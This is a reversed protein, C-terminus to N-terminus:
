APSASRSRSRNRRKSKKRRSSKDKSRSGSRSRKRARDYDDPEGKVDRRSIPRDRDDPEWRRNPSRSGPSRDRSHDRDRDRRSRERYYEDDREYSRRYDDDRRYRRDRDYDRYRDGDDHYDRRRDDRYRDPPGSGHYGYDRPGRGYDIPPEYGGPGRVGPAPPGHLPEGSTPVNYGPVNPKPCVCYKPRYGCTLCRDSAVPPPGEPAKSSSVAGASNSKAIKLVRGDIEHKKGSQLARQAVEEPMAVFGFGRSRGTEREIPIHCELVNDQGYLSSFFDYLDAPTTSYSLNGVHLKVAPPRDSTAASNSKKRNRKRNRPSKSASGNQSATEPSEGNEEPKTDMEDNEKSVEFGLDELQKLVGATFKVEDSVGDLSAQLARLQGDYLALVCSDTGMAYYRNEVEMAAKYANSDFFSQWGTYDAGNDGESPRYSLGGNSAKTWLKVNTFHGKLGNDLNQLLKELKRMFSFQLYRQLIQQHRKTIAITQNAKDETSVYKHLDKTPMTAVVLASLLIPHYTGDSYAIATMKKRLKLHSIFNSDASSFAEKELLKIRDDSWWANIASEDNSEYVDDENTAYPPTFDFPPDVNGVADAVAWGLRVEDSSNSMQAFGYQLILNANSLTGYCCYIESGKKVKKHVIARPLLPESAYLHQEGNDYKGAQLCPQWTVQHDVAEHNLMDLLPIMVGIENWIEAPSQFELKDTPQFATSGADTYCSAPLNRSSFVAAAWVWRDWTLLGPPFTDPFRQLIGADLLATFEAVLQLTSSAVEQLLILGPICGALMALENRKWCLPISVSSPLTRAYPSFSEPAEPPYQIPEKTSQLANSAESRDYTDRFSHSVVHAREANSFRQHILFALVPARTSVSGFEALRFASTLAGDENSDVLLDNSTEELGKKFAAEAKKREQLIKVLTQPGTNRAVKSTFKSECVTTNELSDWFSTNNDVPKCCALVARGADSAAVLDPTIMSARPLVLLVEDKKIERVARVQCGMTRDYLATSSDGDVIGVRGAFKQSAADSAGGGNTSGAAASSGAAGASEHRDFVLVPANKTGDTAEGNVICVAPHVEAKAEDSLWQRFTILRRSLAKAASQDSAIGMIEEYTAASM